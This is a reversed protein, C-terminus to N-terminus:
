LGYRVNVIFFIDLHVSFLTQVSHGCLCHLSQFVDAKVLVEYHGYM